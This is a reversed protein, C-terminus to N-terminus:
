LNMFRGTISIAATATDAACDDRRFMVTLVQNPFYDIKLAQATQFFARGGFVGQRQLPVYYDAVTVLVGSNNNSLTIRLRAFETSGVAAFGSVTDIVAPTAPAPVTHTVSCAPFPLLGSAHRYTPSPVEKVPVANLATNNVAVALPGAVEVTPTGVVAVDSTGSLTVAPMRSIAVTGTVEVTGTVPLPQEPPTSVLVQTGPALSVEGTVPVPM